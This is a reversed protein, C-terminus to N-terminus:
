LVDLSAGEITDLGDCASVSIDPWNESARGAVRFRSGPVIAADPSL